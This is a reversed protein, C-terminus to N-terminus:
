WKEWTLAEPLTLAYYPKKWKPHSDGHQVPLGALEDITGVRREHPLILILGASFKLLLPYEADRLDIVGKDLWYGTWDSKIDYYKGDAKIDPLATIQPGTLFERQQDNGTLRIKQFKKSLVQRLILDEILWNILIERGYDAIKRTDRHHSTQCLQHRLSDTEVPTLKGTLLHHYLEPQPYTALQGWITQQFSHYLDILHTLKNNSALM